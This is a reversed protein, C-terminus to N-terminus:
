FKIYISNYLIYLKKQDPKKRESFNNQYRDISYYTGTTWEKNKKKLYKEM